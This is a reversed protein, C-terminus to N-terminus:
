NYKNSTFFPVEITRSIGIHLSVNINSISLRLKRNEKTNYRM